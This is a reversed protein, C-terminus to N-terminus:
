TTSLQQTQKADAQWYAVDIVSTVWSTWVHVCAYFCICDCRDGFIGLAQQLYYKCYTYYVCVCVCM